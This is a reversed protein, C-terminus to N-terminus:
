KRRMVIKGIENFYYRREGKARMVRIIHVILVIYVVGAILAAFLTAFVSFVYWSSDMSVQISSVIALVDILAFYLAISMFRRFYAVPKSGELVHMHLRLLTSGITKGNWLMPVVVIFVAIMAYDVFLSNIPVFAAVTYAIILDIVLALLSAGPKVIKQEEIVEAYEVVEDHSPFLKLIAPAVFFGLLAGVSNLLLDDVDFIRYPCNFWGYIGTVQTIEFFLTVGLGVLFAKWWKSREKLFYRLYVGIPLLLLFNFFAQFFSPQVIIYKWTAPNSWSIPTNYLIDVWFQFPRLNYFVTDSPQLTCTNRTEPLPLLVLFLASLMYFIFSFSIITKSLSLFGYKRYTYILWPVFLVVLAVIFFLAATQIPFTYASM